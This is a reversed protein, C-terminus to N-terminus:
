VVTSILIHRPDMSEQVLKVNIAGSTNRSSSCIFWWSEKKNSHITSLAAAEPYNEVKMSMLTTDQELKTVTCMHSCARSWLGLGGGGDGGVRLTTLTKIKAFGYVGRSQQRNAAAAQNWMTEPCLSQPSVIVSHHQSSAEKWRLWRWLQSDDLKHQLGLVM